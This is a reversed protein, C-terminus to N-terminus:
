KNYKAQQARKEAPDTATVTTKVEVMSLKTDNPDMLTKSEVANGIDDGNSFTM